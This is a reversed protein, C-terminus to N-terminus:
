NGGVEKFLSREAMALVEIARERTVPPFSELYDVLNKVPVHTGAFVPDGSMKEPDLEIVGNKM